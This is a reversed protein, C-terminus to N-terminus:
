KLIGMKELKEKNWLESNPHEKHFWDWKTKNKERMYGKIEIWKKTSFLYLDPRYTRHEGNKKLLLTTFTKPQWRFNIKNANLYEVVAKEYSAQCVLEENTNWHKLIISNNAKRAGNLFGCEPCWHGQDKIHKLSALWKHKIACEWEMKISNNIYGKSLCKGGRDRAIQQAIELGYIIRGSCYPCWSNNNKISVLIAWWRHKIACEWEMKTEINIYKKSLCRGGREKAIQRAIKLGDLKKNGACEPCWMNSNKINNLIACWRHKVKCEWLMKTHNNVYKKSLCRGGREKAIQKAIKLGDFECM